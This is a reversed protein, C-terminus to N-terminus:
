ANSKWVKEFTNESVNGLVHHADKDFCCPVVKGDWTVVCSHWMKWCSDELTNKMEYKGENNKKYRAYTLDEPMLENGNEYEYFQATKIKIEDVSWKHKLAKVDAIQHENSKFVVFQIAIHPTSSKLEKKWKTLHQVAEEM